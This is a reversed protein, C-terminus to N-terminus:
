ILISKNALQREDEYNDIFGILALHSRKIECLAFSKNRIFARSVIKNAAKVESAGGV